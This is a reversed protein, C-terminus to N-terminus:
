RRFNVAIASIFILCAGFGVSNLKAGEKENESKTEVRFYYSDGLKEVELGGYYGYESAPIKETNNDEKELVYKYGPYDNSKVTYTFQFRGNVSENRGKKEPKYCTHPEELTCVYFTVSVVDDETDIWADFSDGEGVTNPSHSMEAFSSPILFVLALVLFRNM